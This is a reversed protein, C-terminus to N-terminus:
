YSLCGALVGLVGEETEGLLQDEVKSGKCNLVM